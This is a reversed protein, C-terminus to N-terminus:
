PRPHVHRLRGQNTNEVEAYSGNTSHIKSAIDEQKAALAGGSKMLSEYVKAMKDTSVGANPTGPMGKSGSGLQNASSRLDGAMGSLESASYDYGDKNPM